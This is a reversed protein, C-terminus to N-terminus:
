VQPRDRPLHQYFRWTFVIAAVTLGVYSGMWIGIGGLSTHFGLWYGTTFGAGWYAFIGLVMPVRTDQLGQLVGNMVRQIGDVLQGCGAVRLLISSLRITEANAPNDLDLYLGVLAQPYIVLAIAVLGMFATTLGVSVVAAQKIQPWNRQGLWQGVRITAGQSFALPVMFIVVVTQLAIQNAALVATGLIGMWFTMVTFLGHEWFTAVGIPWGLHLIRRLPQLDLHYWRHCFDYAQFRQTGPWLLYALLALFMMWHAVASALALGALGMAPFGLKGFALIYNGIGNLITAGLVIVMIPRTSSIASVTGRLVAFGLAPLLGWRVVVLYSHALPIVDPAQGLARLGGELQGMMPVSILAMVLAVWLGQRAVKGVYLPKGAGHAEAALASVSALLSTGTLLFSSFVMAALGGAALPLQGLWGMMVTDVFGTLAQAVQASALPIALTLFARAEQRFTFRNTTSM